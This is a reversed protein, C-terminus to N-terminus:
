QPQLWIDGDSWGSPETSSIYVKNQQDSRLVDDGSYTLSGSSVAAGGFFSAQNNFDAFDNFQVYSQFDRDGSINLNTSTVYNETAIASGSLTADNPFDLAGGSVDLMTLASATTNDILRLAGSTSSYRLEYEGTSGLTLTDDDNLSLGADFTWESTVTEASALEGIDAAHLGDVSDADGSISGTITQDFTWAGTITEAGAVEAVDAAHLGDVSDADGDISGSITNSFTWTGSITENGAVEAIDAAHLSDVSDADGLIQQDFSWQATITEAVSAETYSAPVSAAVQAEGNAGETVALNDHFDLYAADAVAQTGDDYIDTPIDSGTWDITVTGDGNDTAGLDVGFDFGAVDSATATGSDTVDPYYPDAETIVSSGGVTVDTTATFTDASADNTISASDASVSGSVALGNQLTGTFDWNASVTEASALEALDTSDLGDLTDADINDAATTLVTEFTGGKRIELDYDDTGHRRIQGIRDSTTSSYRLEHTGNDFGTVRTYTSALNTGYTEGTVRLNRYATVTNAGVEFAASAHEDGDRLVWEGSDRTELTWGITLNSLDVEDVDRWDTGDSWQITDYDYPTVGLVLRDPDKLM